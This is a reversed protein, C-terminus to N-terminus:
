RGGPGDSRPTSSSSPALPCTVPHVSRGSLIGECSRTAVRYPEECVCSRRSRGFDREKRRMPRGAGASITSDGPIGVAAEAATRIAGPKRATRFGEGRSVPASATLPRGARVECGSAVFCVDVVRHLLPRRRNRPTEFRRALLVVSPHPAIRWVDAGHVHTDIPPGIPDSVSTASARRPSSLTPAGMGEDKVHVDRGTSRCEGTLTRQLATTLARGAGAANALLPRAPSIKPAM